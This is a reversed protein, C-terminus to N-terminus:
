IPLDSHFKCFILIKLPFFLIKKVPKISIAHHGLNTFIKLNLNEFNYKTRSNISSLASFEREMMKRITGSLKLVTGKQKRTDDGLNM